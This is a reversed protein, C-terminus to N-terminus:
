GDKKAEEVMFPWMRRIAARYIGKGAVHLGFGDLGAEIMAETPERLEDLIDDTISEAKRRLHDDAKWMIDIQAPSRDSFTGALVIRGIRERMTPAEATM